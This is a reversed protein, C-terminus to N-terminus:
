HPFNMRRLLEEFRPDPRLPDFWPAVQLLALSGHRQRFAMELAQFADDTRDTLALMSARHSHNTNFIPDSGFLRDARWQWYGRAGRERQATRVGRAEDAAVGHLVLLKEFASAAEDLRGEAEATWRLVIYARDFDPDLELVRRCEQRAEEYRRAYLLVEATSTQRTLSTPSLKRARDAEEIAEDHRGLVSLLFAYGMHADGFSPSLEIARLFSSEAGEWDLEYWTQIWGQAAHAAPLRPELELARLGSEKAQMMAQEYEVGGIPQGLLYYARARMAHALAFDPDLEIALEFHVIAQRMSEATFPGMHFMGRLYADYADADVPRNAALRAEEEPLVAVQIQRAIDRAVKSQLVLVGEMDRDYSQSWLHREPDAAVLQATIRVRNGERITSGEVVADVNLEHAIEPLTKETDRYQMVSTRSIVRLASLKGLEAILADHMGDAFYDQQADGSLNELPLVALSGIEGPASRGSLWDRFRDANLVVMLAVLVAAVSVVVVRLPGAAPARPAPTIEGLGELPAIFRYGRRPITEIYRPTDPSDAVAERLKNVAKNLGRDFDVHTDSSWLKERIEDRSVIQGPKELLLELIRFPQEQLRVKVGQKRLERARLDVEFVGFRVVDPSSDPESM